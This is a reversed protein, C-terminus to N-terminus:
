ARALSFSHDFQVGFGPVIAEAPFTTRAFLAGNSLFLAEETVQDGNFQNAPITGSWRVQANGPYTVTPTVNTLASIDELANDAATPATPANLNGFQMDNIELDNVDSVAFNDTGNTVQPTSLGFGVLRSIASLGLDTVLNSGEWAVEAIGEKLCTQISQESLPEVLLWEYLSPASAVSVCSLLAGVNVRTIRLSGTIGIGDM